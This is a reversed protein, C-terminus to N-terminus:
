HSNSFEAGARAEEGAKKEIFELRKPLATRTIEVVPQTEDNGVSRRRGHAGPRVIADEVPMRFAHADEHEVRGRWECRDVRRQACHEAIVQQIRKRGGRNPSRVGAPLLEAHPRPQCVLTMEVLIPIAAELINAMANARTLELVQQRKERQDVALALKKGKRRLAGGCPTKWGLRWGTNGGRAIVARQTKQPRQDRHQLRGAEHQDM